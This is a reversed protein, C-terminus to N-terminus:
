PSSVMPPTTLGPERATVSLSTGLQSGRSPATSPAASWRTRRHCRSRSTCVRSSMSSTRGVRRSAISQGNVSPASGGGGARSDVQQFAVRVGGALRGAACRSGAARGDRWRLQMSRLRPSTRHGPTHVAHRQQWRESEGVLPQALQPTPMGAHKDGNMQADGVILRDRDASVTHLGLTDPRSLGASDDAIQSIRATELDEHRTREGNVLHAAYAVDRLVDSSGIAYARPQASPGDPWIYM